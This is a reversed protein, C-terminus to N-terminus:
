HAHATAQTAHPASNPAREPPAHSMQDILREITLLPKSGIHGGGPLRIAGTYPAGGPGSVPTAMQRLAQLAPRVTAILRQRGEGQVVQLFRQLVYNAYQDQM